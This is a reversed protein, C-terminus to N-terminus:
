PYTSRPSRRFPRDPGTIGTTPRSPQAHRAPVRRNEPVHDHNFTLGPSMQATRPPKPPEPPVWREPERNFRSYTVRPPRPPANNFTQSRSPFVDVPPELEFRSLRPDPERSFDWRGQTTMAREYVLPNAQDTRVRDPLADRIDPRQLERPSLPRGEFPRGPREPNLSRYPVTTLAREIALPDVQGNRPQEQQIPGFDPTTPTVQFRRVFDRLDQHRSEGPLPVVVDSAQQASSRTAMTSLGVLLLV